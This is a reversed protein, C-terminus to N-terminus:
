NPLEASISLVPQDWVISVQLGITPKIQMVCIILSGALHHEKIFLIIYTHGTDMEIINLVEYVIVIHPKQNDSFRIGLM